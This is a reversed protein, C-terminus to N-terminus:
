VNFLFNISFLDAQRYYESAGCGKQVGVIEEYYKKM